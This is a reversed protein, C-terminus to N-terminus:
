SQLFSHATVTAKEFLKMPLNSTHSVCVLDSCEVFVASMVDNAVGNTACGDVTNFRVKLPNQSARIMLQQIIKAALANGTLPEKLFSLSLVRQQITKKNCVFRVVQLCCCSSITMLECTMMKGSCTGRCCKNNWRLM